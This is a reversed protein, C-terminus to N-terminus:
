NVLSGKFGDAKLLTGNVEDCADNGMCWGNGECMRAGRCEWSYKCMGSGLWNEAERIDCDNKKPRSAKYSKWDGRWIDPKSINSEAGAEDKKEKKDGKKDAKADKKADAKAEKKADAKKDTKAAAKTEKKADKNVDADIALGQAVLALAAILFLSKM